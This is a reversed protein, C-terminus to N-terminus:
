LYKKFCGVTLGAVGSFFLAFMPIIWRPDMVVPSYFYVVFFILVGYVMMMKLRHYLYASERSGASRRLSWMTIGNTLGVVLVAIVLPGSLILVGVRLVILQMSILLLQIYEWQDVILGQLLQDHKTHDSISYFLTLVKEIRLSLNKELKPDALEVLYRLETNLVEYFEGVSDEWAFKAFVLHCIPAMICLLGLAVVRRLLRVAVNSEQM